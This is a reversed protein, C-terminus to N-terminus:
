SAVFFRGPNITAHRFLREGKAAAARLNQPV